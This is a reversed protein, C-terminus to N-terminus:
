GFASFDRDGELCWKSKRVSPEVKVKAKDFFIIRASRLGTQGSHSASFSANLLTSLTKLQARSYGVCAM